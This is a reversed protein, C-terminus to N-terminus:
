DDNVVVAIVGTMGGGKGGGSGREWGRYYPVEVGSANWVEAAGSWSEERGGRLSRDASASGGVERWRWGARPRRTGRWHQWSSPRDGRGRMLREHCAGLRQLVMGTVRRHSCRRVGRSCWGHSGSGSRRKRRGIFGSQLAQILLQRLPIFSPGGHVMSECRRGQDM